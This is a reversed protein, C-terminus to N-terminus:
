LLSYFGSTNLAPKFSDSIGILPEQSGLILYGGTKLSREINKIIKEQFNPQWFKLHNRFVICDFPAETPQFDYFNGQSFSIINRVTSKMFFEDNTKKLGACYLQFVVDEIEESTFEGKEANALAISYTDTASIHFHWNSFTEQYSNLFLALSYAEKGGECGPVWFNLARDDRSKNLLEPFLVESLARFMGAGEFFSLHPRMLLNEFAALPKLTGKQISKFFAEDSDYSLNKAIKSIQRAKLAIDTPQIRSQYTKSLFEACNKYLSKKFENSESITKADKKPSISFDMPQSLHETTM